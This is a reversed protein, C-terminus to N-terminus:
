LSTHSDVVGGILEALAVAERQTECTVNSLGYVLPMNAQHLFEAAAQVAENVQEVSASAFHGIVQDPQSPNVSAFTSEGHIQRGNIILPYTQGLESQAKELAATQRQRNEPSSFDLVAENKFPIHARSAASEMMKAM